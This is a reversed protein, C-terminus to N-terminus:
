RIFVKKVTAGRRELYFGSTPNKVMRGQLDFYEAPADVAEVSVEEVGALSEPLDLVLARIPAAATEEDGWIAVGDSRRGVLSGVPIEIRGEKLTGFADAPIDAEATGERRYDEAKSYFFYTTGAGIGMRSAPIYVREPDTVDFPMYASTCYPYSSTVLYTFPDRVFVRGPEDDCTYVEVERAVSIEEM